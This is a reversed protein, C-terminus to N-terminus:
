DAKKTTTTWCVASIAIETLCFYWIMSAIGVSTCFHPKEVVCVKMYIRAAPWFFFWKSHACLLFDEKRGHWSSVNNREDIPKAMSLGEATIWNLDYVTTISSIICLLYITYPSHFSNFLINCMSLFLSCFLFSISISDPNSCKQTSRWLMCIYVISHRTCFHFYWFQVSSIAEIRGQFRM